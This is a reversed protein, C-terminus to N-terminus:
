TNGPGSYVVRAPRGRDKDHPCVLTYTVDRKSSENDQQVSFLGDLPLANGKDDQISLGDLSDMRLVTGGFLAGRLYAGYRQTGDARSDQCQRHWRTMRRRISELQIITQKEESSVKIIIISSGEVGKFTKGAARDLNDTVIVPRADALLQATLVGKLEKLYKADKAGKSLQVPVIHNLGVWEMSLRDRYRSYMQSQKERRMKQM